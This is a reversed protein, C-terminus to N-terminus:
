NKRIDEGSVCGSGSRKGMAGMIEAQEAKGYQLGGKAGNIIDHGFNDTLQEVLMEIESEEPM